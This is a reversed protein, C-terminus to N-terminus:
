PQEPCGGDAYLGGEVTEIDAKTRHDGDGSTSSNEALYTHSLRGDEQLRSVIQMDLCDMLM